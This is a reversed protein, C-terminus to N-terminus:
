CTFTSFKSTNCLIPWEIPDVQTTHTDEQNGRMDFQVWTHTGYVFLQRNLLYVGKVHEEAQLPNEIIIFESSLM